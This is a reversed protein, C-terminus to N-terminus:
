SAREIPCYHNKIRASMYAAHAEEATDYSGLSLVNGNVTIRAQYRGSLLAHVGQPLPGKKRYITHNQANEFRDCSKLNRMRNDLSDGNRHDIMAPIYGHVHLFALRHAPYPRGDIKIVLYKKGRSSRISGAIKGNWGARRSKIWVFVGTDPDYSLLERLSEQTVSGQLMEDHITVTM